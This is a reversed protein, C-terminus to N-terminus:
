QDQSNRGLAAVALCVAGFVVVPLIAPWFQLLSAKLRGYEQIKRRVLDKLESPLGEDSTRFSSLLRPMKSRGSAAVLMPSRNFWPSDEGSDVAHHSLGRTSFWTLAKENGAKDYYLQFGLLGGDPKYWAILDFNDDFFWRRFSDTSDQRVHRM